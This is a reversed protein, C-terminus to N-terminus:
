EDIMVIIEGLIYKKFKKFIYKKNQELFSTLDLTNPILVAWVV